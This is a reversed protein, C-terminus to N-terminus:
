PLALGPKELALGGHSNHKRGQMINDRVEGFKVKVIEEGGDGRILPRAVFHM